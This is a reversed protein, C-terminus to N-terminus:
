EGVRYELEGYGIHGESSIAEVLIIYDGEVDGNFFDVSISSNIGSKITPNWYILNRLDPPANDSDTVDYKPAYFEKVPSFADIMTNLTGPLSKYAGSIGM